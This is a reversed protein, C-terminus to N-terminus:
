CHSASAGTSSRCVKRNNVKVVYQGLKLDDLIESSQVTPLLRTDCWFRSVLPNSCPRLALYLPNQLLQLSVSSARWMSLPLVLSLELVVFM